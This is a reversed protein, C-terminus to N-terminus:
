AVGGRVSFSVTAGSRGLKRAIDANSMGKSHLRRMESVEAATVPLAVKRKVKPKEIQGLYKRHMALLEDKLQNNEELLAANAVDLRPFDGRPAVLESEMANFLEIYKIKFQMAPKGTFGMAILVFGDRSMEYMPRPKKQADLYKAARFNPARFEEPIDQNNIADLVHYHQKGFVKAINISTTVPHGHAIRVVPQDTSLNNM